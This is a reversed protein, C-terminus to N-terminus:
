QLVTTFHRRNLRRKDHKFTTRGHNRYKDILNRIDIPVELNWSKGCKEAKKFGLAVAHSLCNYGNGNTLLRM